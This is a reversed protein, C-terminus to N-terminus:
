KKPISKREYSAPISFSTEVPVDLEAKSFEMDLKVEQGKNNITIYRNFAFPQQGTIPGYKEYRITCTFGRQESSLQLEQLTGTRKNYQLLETFDDKAVTILMLSDKTEAKKVPMDNILPNGILLNQLVPFEVQAQILELGEKYSLAYAKKGIKVIARLSDPTISARAVEAIGLAIISAWIDKSKNMRLNGTVDQNQDKSEFHMDAKGSFTNWAITQALYEEAKREQSVPKVPETTTTKKTTNCAQTGLLLLVAAALAITRVHTRLLQFPYRKQLKTM